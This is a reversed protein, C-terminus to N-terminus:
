WWDKCLINASSPISGGVEQESTCLAVLQAIPRPPLSLPPALISNQETFDYSGSQQFKPFLCHLLLM